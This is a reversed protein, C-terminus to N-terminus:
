LYRRSFIECLPVFVCLCLPLTLFSFHLIFLLMYTDNKMKKFRQTETDRHSLYAFLNIRNM